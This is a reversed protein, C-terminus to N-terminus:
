IFWGSALDGNSLIILSTVSSSHTLQYAANSVSDYIYIISDSAAAIYGNTLVTLAFIAYNCQPTIDTIKSGDAIKWKVLYGSWDGSIMSTSDYQVISLVGSSHLSNANVKLSYDTGSWIKITKDESSSAFDGNTLVVIKYIMDTHGTLSSILNNSADYINLFESNFVNMTGYVIKENTLVAM